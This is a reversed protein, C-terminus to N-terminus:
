FGFLFCSCCSFVGCLRRFSGPLPTDQDATQTLPPQRHSVCGGGVLVGELHHTTQAVALMLEFGQKM